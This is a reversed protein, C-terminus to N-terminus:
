KALHITTTHALKVDMDIWGGKSLDNNQINAVLTRLCTKVVCVDSIVAFSM